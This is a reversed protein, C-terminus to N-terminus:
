VINDTVLNSFVFARIFKSVSIKNLGSLKKVQSLQETTMRLTIIKEKKM